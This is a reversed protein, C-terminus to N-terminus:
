FWFFWCDLLGCAKSLFSTVSLIFLFSKRFYRYITGVCQIFYVSIMNKNSKTQNPLLIHHPGWCTSLLLVFSIRLLAFRILAIQPFTKLQFNAYIHDTVFKAIRSDKLYATSQISWQRTHWINWFVNLVSYANTLSWLKMGLM